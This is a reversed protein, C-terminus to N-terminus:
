YPFLQARGFGGVAVLTAQTPIEARQWLQRLLGDALESFHHLVGRVSRRGLAPNKLLAIQQNKEERYRERLRELSPEDSPPPSQLAPSTM